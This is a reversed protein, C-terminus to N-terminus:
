RFTTAQKSKKIMNFHSWKFFFFLFFIIGSANSSDSLDFSGDATSEEDSKVHNLAIKLENTWPFFDENGDIDSSTMTKGIKIEKDEDSDPSKELLSNDDSIPSKDLSSIVVLDSSPDYLFDLNERIVGNLPLLCQNEPKNAKNLPIFDKSKECPYQGMVYSFSYDETLNYGDDLDSHYSVTKLEM